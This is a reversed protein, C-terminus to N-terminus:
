ISSWKWNTNLKWVSHSLYAVFSAWLLYPLLLLVAITSTSWVALIIAAVSVWLASAEFVAIGMQHEKFFIYSWLISLVANTAYLGLIFYKDIGSTMNWVILASTATLIFLITLVSGISSISLTWVPKRIHEYWHVGSTTYRTSIYVTVAAILPILVFIINM